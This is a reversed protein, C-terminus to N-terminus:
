KKGSAVCSSTAEGLVEVEHEKWNGDKWRWEWPPVPEPDTWLGLGERRAQKELLRYLTEDPTYKEYWWALGAKLLEYNLIRRNPLMIEAVTRGHRDVDREFVLVTKDM